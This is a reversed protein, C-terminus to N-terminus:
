VFVWWGIAKMLLAVALSLGVAGITFKIARWPQSLERTVQYSFTFFILSMWAFFLFGPLTMVGGAFNVLGYGDM